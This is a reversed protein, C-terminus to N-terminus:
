FILHHLKTIPNINSTSFEETTGYSRNVYDYVMIQTGYYFVAVNAYKLVGSFDHTTSIHGKFYYQDPAIRGIVWTVKHIEKRSHASNIQYTGSTSRAMNNTMWFNKEDQKFYSPLLSCYFDEKYIIPYFNGTHNIELSWDPKNYSTWLASHVDFATNIWSHISEQEQVKTNM